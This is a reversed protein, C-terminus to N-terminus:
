YQNLQDESKLYFFIFYKNERSLHPSIENKEPACVSEFNSRIKQQLEVIWFDFLCVNSKSVAM